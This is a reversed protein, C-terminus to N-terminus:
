RVLIKGSNVKDNNQLKCVILWILVSVLDAFINLFNNFFYNILLSEINGVSEQDCM